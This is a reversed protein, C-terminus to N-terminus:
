FNRVPVQPPPKAYWPIPIRLKIRRHSAGGGGGGADRKWGLRKGVTLSYDHGGEL